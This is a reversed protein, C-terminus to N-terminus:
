WGQVISKRCGEPAIAALYDELQDRMEVFFKGSAPFVPRPMECYWGGQGHVFYIWYSRTQLCDPCQVTAAGTIRDGPKVVSQVRPTSMVANPGWIAGPRIYDGGQTPLVLAGADLNDLNAWMLQYKPRDAVADDAANRILVSVMSPYVFELHVDPKPLDERPLVLPITSFLSPLTQETMVELQTRLFDNSDRMEELLRLREERADDREQRAATRETEEQIRDDFRQVSRSAVVVLGFVVFSAALAYRLRQYRDLMKHLQRELLVFSLGVMALLYDSIDPLIDAIPRAWHLFPKFAEPPEWQGVLFIASAVLAATAVAGLWRLWAPGSRKQWVPIRDPM